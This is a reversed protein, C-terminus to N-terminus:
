AGEKLRRGNREIAKVIFDAGSSISASVFMLCSTILLMIKISILHLNIFSSHDLSNPGFLVFLLMLAAVARSLVRLKLRGDLQEAIKSPKPMVPKTEEFQVPDPKPPIVAVKAKPKEADRMSRIFELTEKSVAKNM